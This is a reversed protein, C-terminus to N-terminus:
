REFGAATKQDSIIFIRPILDSIIVTVMPLLRASRVPISTASTLTVNSSKGIKIKTWPNSADPDYYVILNFEDSEGLKYTEKLM